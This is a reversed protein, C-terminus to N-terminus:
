SGTSTVNAFCKELDGDGDNRAYAQSEVFKDLECVGQEDAGCFELPQVVDQVLIRVKKVGACTLREVVMRGSFPVLASARWTRRPNPQTPDLPTPQCFLGLAAFIAAM